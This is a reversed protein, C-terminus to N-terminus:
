ENNFLQHPTIKRVSNSLIISYGATFTIIGACAIALLGFETPSGFAFIGIGKLAMVLLGAAGSRSILLGIVAAIVSTPLISVVTQYIIDKTVFGLSKLIGNDRKKNMLYVSILIYLIFGAILFSVLVVVISAISLINMYSEASTRAMERYNACYIVNCKEAISTDFRDIDESEKLDVFYSVSTLTLIESYGDRQLYCDYGSSAAGQTTGCISFTKKGDKTDFTLTDGIKLKNKAVYSGNIAIEGPGEPMRGSICIRDKDIDDSNDYIYSYMKPYGDPTVTNTTYMYFREVLENSELERVLNEENPVSVNVISDGVTGLVLSLADSSDLVINQYTFCAFGLLFSIGTISVFLVLNRTFSSAWTKLSLATNLGLHTKDLRFVNKRNKTKVGSERIASIPPITRIGAVSVFTTIASALVCVGISLIAEPLMFKIHYPIGVQKELASNMVPLLLYSLAVGFISTILALLSFEAVIPAILNDSKYGLAKLAGLNKMNNRIYNTLTIAIIALVVVIMLLSTISIIAGFMTATIYRSNSLRIASSSRTLSLSPIAERIDHAIKSELADAMSPDDLTISLRYGRVANVSISEYDEDSILFVIDTCNMSGTDVNNYFGAIRFSDNRTGFTITIEDGIKCGADVKFIYSLIIGEGDKELIDYQGVKKKMADSFKMYSINRTLTGSKFPVTGNNTLVNDIEYESIEPIKDLAAGITDIKSQTPNMDAFVFDVDEGNLREKEDYFSDKYNFSLFLYTNLLAAVIIFLLAVVFIQYKSYRLNSKIFNLYKGNVM